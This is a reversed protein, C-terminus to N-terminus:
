SGEAGQTVALGCVPCFRDEHAVEHGAPCCRTRLLDPRRWSSFFICFAAGYFVMAHGSFLRVGKAMDTDRSAIALLFNVLAYAFIGYVAYIMWPPCGALVQKWSFKARGGSNIRQALLVAPFWVAFIGGGLITAAATQVSESLHSQLSPLLGAIAALQALACLLLGLGAVLMLPILLFRM